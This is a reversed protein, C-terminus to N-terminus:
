DMPECFTLCSQAVSGCPDKRNWMVTCYGNEDGM